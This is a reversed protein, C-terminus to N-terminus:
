CPITAHLKDVLELLVHRFLFQIVFQQHVDRFGRQARLNVLFQCIMERVDDDPSDLTNASGLHRKIEMHHLNHMHHVLAIHVCAVNVPQNKVVTCAVRVHRLSGFVTIDENAVNRQFVFFALHVCSEEVAVSFLTFFLNRSLAFESIIFYLLDDLELFLDATIGFFAEDQDVLFSDIRKGEVKELFSADYSDTPCFPPIHLPERKRTSPVSHVRYLIEIFFAQSMGVEYIFM